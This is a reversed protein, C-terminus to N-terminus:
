LKNRELYHDVGKFVIGQIQEDTKLMGGKCAFPQVHAVSPLAEIRRVEDATMNLYVLNEPEYQDISHDGNVLMYKWDSMDFALPQEAPAAEVPAPAPVEPAAPAETPAPAYEMQIPAQPQENMVIGQDFGEPHLGTAPGWAEVDVSHWHLQEQRYTYLGLLILALIGIIIRGVRNKM